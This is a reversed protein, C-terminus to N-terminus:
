IPFQGSEGCRGGKRAFILSKRFLIMKVMVEGGPGLRLASFSSGGYNATYIMRHESSVLMHAPYRTLQEKQHSFCPLCFNFQVALM